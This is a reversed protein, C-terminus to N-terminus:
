PRQRLSQSAGSAAPDPGGMVPWIDEPVNEVIIINKPFTQQAIKAMEHVLTGPKLVRRIGETGRGFTLLQRVLDAGREASKEIAILTRETGEPSMGMRLLPASM